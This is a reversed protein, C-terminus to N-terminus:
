VPILNKPVQTNRVTWKGRGKTFQDKKMSMLYGVIEHQNTLRTINFVAFDTLPQKPIFRYDSLSLDSSSAQPAHHSKEVHSQLQDKFNSVDSGIVEVTSDPYFKLDGDCVLYGCRKCIGIYLSKAQTTREM